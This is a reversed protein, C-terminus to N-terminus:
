ALVHLVFSTVSYVSFRITSKIRWSNLHSTKIFKIRKWRTKGIKERQRDRNKTRQKCKSLQSVQSYDRRKYLTRLNCFDIFLDPMSSIFFFPLTIESLSFISWCCARATFLLNWGGPWCQSLVVLLDPTTIM